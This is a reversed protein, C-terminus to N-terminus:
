FFEFARAVHFDDEIALQDVLANKRRDINLARARPFFLQKNRLVVQCADPYQTLHKVRQGRYFRHFQQDILKALCSGIALEQRVHARDLLFTDTTLLWRLLRRLPPEKTKYLILTRDELESCSSHGLCFGCEEGFSEAC